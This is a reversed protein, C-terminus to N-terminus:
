RVTRSVGAKHDPDYWIEVSITRPHQTLLREMFWSALGQLTQSGGVLMQGLDRLHLEMVIAHLDKELGTEIESQEVAEVTFRHGHLHVGEDPDRHTTDFYDQVKTYRNV